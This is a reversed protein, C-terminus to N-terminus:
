FANSLSTLILGAILCVIGIQRAKRYREETETLRRDILDALEGRVVAIDRRWADPLERVDGEIQGFREMAQRSEQELRTLRAEIPEPPRPGKLATIRGATNTELAIGLSTAGYHQERRRFARRVRAKAARYRRVAEASRDIADPWWDSAAVLGIGLLDFAMGTGLLIGATVSGLRYHEHRIPARGRRASAGTRVLAYADPSERCVLDIAQKPLAPRSDRERLVDSVHGRGDDVLRDLLGDGM